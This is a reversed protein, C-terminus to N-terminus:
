IINIKIQSQRGNSTLRLFYVGQSYHQANFAIAHHGQGLSGDVLLKVCRGTVDLLELTVLGAETVNFTINSVTTVPNPYVQLDSCAEYEKIGTVDLFRQGDSTTISSFLGAGNQAKVSFYYLQDDILTQSNNTVSTALANNTWAIVNSDGATTGV